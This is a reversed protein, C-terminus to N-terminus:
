CLLETAEAGHYSQPSNASALHCFSNFDHECILNIAAHLFKPRTTSMRGDFITRRAKHWANPMTEFVAGAFACQAQSCSLSFTRCSVLETALTALGGNEA